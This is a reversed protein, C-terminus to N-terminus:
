RSTKSTWQCILLQHRRPPMARFGAVWPSRPRKPWLRPSIEYRLISIGLGWDWRHAQPWQCDRSTDEPWTQDRAEVYCDERQHAEARFDIAALRGPPLGLRWTFHGVYRMSKLHRGVPGIHFVLQERFVPDRRCLEGAPAVLPEAPRPRYAGYPDFSMSWASDSVVM